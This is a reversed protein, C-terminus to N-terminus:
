KATEAQPQQVTEKDNAFFENISDIIEGTHKEPKTLPCVVLFVVVAVILGWLGASLGLPSSKTIYTLVLMTGEGLLISAVAGQKTSRKWYIGGIVTPCLAAVGSNALNLINGLMDPQLLAFIVSIIGFIVVCWKAVNYMKKESAKKDVYKKYIDTSILSSVAHLQSDGTSMSAALAGAIVLAAFVQPTYKLLMEPFVTDPSAIDPFLINGVFGVAPTFVYISTLYISSFVASWKLVRLSKGAFFRLTIHPFMMMGFTIVIWRSLWDQMTVLGQPGPLTFLEPVAQFAQAYADGVSDFNALLVWLSGLVLGVWMFVGQAADTIAVGKMGGLWVLVIMIAFFFLTGATYSLQGGSISQFIYGSGIAQMAVYPVTFIMCIISVLLGLFNSNYADSIYDSISIYGYKKGMFWFRRGWVWFLVGPLVTWLGNVWWGIGHSYCFGGAGMFAYSSHYTASFTLTLVFIGLGGGTAFDKINREDKKHAYLAIGILVVMYGLLIWMGVNM